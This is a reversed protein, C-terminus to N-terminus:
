QSATELTLNRKIVGKDETLSLGLVKEVYNDCPLGDRLFIDLNDPNSLFVNQWEAGMEDLEPIRKTVDSVLHKGASFNEYIKGDFLIGVHWYEKIGSPVPGFNKPRKPTPLYFVKANYKM